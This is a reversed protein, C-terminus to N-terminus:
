RKQIRDVDISAPGQSDQDVKGYITIKDKPTINQNQWAHDEVDIKIESTADKFLFEDSDIQRTINGTLTVPTNEAAKKAQAITNVAKAPENNSGNFGALASTSIALLTTLTLFKKM